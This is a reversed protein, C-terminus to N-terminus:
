TRLAVRVSGDPRPRGSSQMALIIRFEFRALGVDSTGRNSRYPMQSSTRCPPLRPQIARRVVEKAIRSYGSLAHRPADDPCSVESNESALLLRAV